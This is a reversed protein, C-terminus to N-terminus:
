KPIKSLFPITRVFLSFLSLNILLVLDGDKCIVIFYESLQKSNLGVSKSKNTLIITNCNRDGISYIENRINSLLIKACRRKTVMTWNFIQCLSIIPPKIYSLM